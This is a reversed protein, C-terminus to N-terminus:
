GERDSDVALRFLALSWRSAALSQRHFFAVKEVLALLLFWRSKVTGVALLGPLVLDRPHDAGFLTLKGSAGVLAVAGAEGFGTGVHEASIVHHGALVHAATFAEFDGAHLGHDKGLLLRAAM